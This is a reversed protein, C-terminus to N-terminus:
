FHKRCHTFVATDSIERGDLSGLFITQSMSLPRLLDAEWGSTNLAPIGPIRNERSQGPPFKDRSQAELGPIGTHTKKAPFQVM